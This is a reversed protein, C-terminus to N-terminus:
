FQRTISFGLSMDPHKEDGLDYELGLRIDFNRARFTPLNISYSRTEMGYRKDKGAELKLNFGFLNLNAFNTTVWDDLTQGAELSVKGKGLLVSYEKEKLNQAYRFMIGGIKRNMRERLKEIKNKSGPYLSHNLKEIEQMYQLVRSGDKTNIKIYFELNDDSDAKGTFLKSNVFMGFNGQKDKVSIFPTYNGISRSTFLNAIVEQGQKLIETETLNDTITSETEQYGINLFLNLKGKKDYVIHALSSKGIEVSDIVEQNFRIGNVLDADFSYLRKSQSSESYNKSFGLGFENFLFQFADVEEWFKNLDYHACFSLGASLDFDLSKFDYVVGGSGFGEGNIGKYQELVAINGEKDELTMSSHISGSAKGYLDVSWGDKDWVKPDLLFPTVRLLEKLTLSKIKVVNELKDAMNANEFEQKLLDLSEVIKGVYFGAILQNEDEIAQKLEDIPLQDIPFNVVKANAPDQLLQEVNYMIQSLDQFFYQTLLNSDIDGLNGPLLAKLLDDSDLIADLLKDFDVDKGRVYVELQPAIETHMRASTPYVQGQMPSASLLGALAIIKTLSKVM